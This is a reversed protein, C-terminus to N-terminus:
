EQSDLKLKDIDLVGGMYLFMKNDKDEMIMMFDSISTPSNITAYSKVYQGEKITEKDIEFEQLRETLSSIRSRISNYIAGSAKSYDIIVMSTVRKMFAKGFKQQFAGKILKLQIGQTIVMCEVGEASDLETAITEVSKEIDIAQQAAATWQAFVFSLTLITTLLIKKM